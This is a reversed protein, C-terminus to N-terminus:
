RSMVRLASIKALQHTVEETVGAAFYAKEAADLNEFPLVAIGRPQTIAAAATLAEIPRPNPSVVTKSAPTSEKGSPRMGFYAVVALLGVALTSVTWILSRSNTAPTVPVPVSLVALQGAPSASPGSLLKQVRSVFAASAEGGPLKTWQVATFADPVLAEREGTADISVPVIFPRGKAILLSRQEALHWELRFYGEQRAQTNASIVPVFLGCAIIQGRIKRDWADGGVLEREDFWVEVGASRLSECIRRVAEVDQSAYSLFVAKCASESMPPPIIQGIRSILSM